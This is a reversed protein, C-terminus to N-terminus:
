SPLFSPTLPLLYLPPFSNKLIKLPCKYSIWVHTPPHHHHLPALLLLFVLRKQAGFFADLENGMGEKKECFIRGLECVRDSIGKGKVMIQVRESQWHHSIAAFLATEGFFHGNELVRSTVVANQFNECVEKERELRTGKGLTVKM